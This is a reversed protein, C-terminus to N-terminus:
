RTLLAAYDAGEAGAFRRGMEAGGRDRCGPGLAGTDVDPGGPRDPAAGISALLDEESAGWSRNRRELGASGRLFRRLKWQAAEREGLKRWRVWCTPTQQFLRVLL